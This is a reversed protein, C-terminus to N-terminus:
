ARNDAHVHGDQYDEKVYRFYRRCAAAVDQQSVLIWGGVGQYRAFLDVAIGGYRPLHRSDRAVLGGNEAWGLTGALRENDAESRTGSTIVIQVDEGVDRSLALRTLELSTVLGASVVVTGDNSEFERLCFHSPRPLWFGCWCLRVDNSM